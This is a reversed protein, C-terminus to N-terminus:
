QPSIGEFEEHLQACTNSMQALVPDGTLVHLEHLIEGLEANLGDILHLRRHALLELENVKKQDNPDIATAMFLHIWSSINDM